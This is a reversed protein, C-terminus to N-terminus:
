FEYDEDDSAVNEEDEALAIMDKFSMVYDDLSYDIAECFDYFYKDGGLNEIRSMTIADRVTVCDETDEGMKTLYVKSEVSYWHRFREIEDVFNGIEDSTINRAMGVLSLHVNELITFIETEAGPIHNTVDEFYQDILESVMYFDIESFLQCLEEYPLEGEYEMIDSINEFYQFDAPETIDLLNYLMEKDSSNNTM